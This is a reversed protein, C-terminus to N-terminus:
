LQNHIGDTGRESPQLAGAPITTLSYTALADSMAKLIQDQSEGRFLFRGGQQTAYGPAQELLSGPEPVLERYLHPIVGLLPTSSVVTQPLPKPRPVMLWGGSAAAAVAHPRVRDELLVETWLRFLNVGFVEHIVYSVDAGPVRAGIELFILEGGNDFFELHFASAKLDLVALCRLAFERCRAVVESDTQIVSGFPEGAEFALCTSVYRSISMFLCRGQGDVVGDAHMIDGDIYEEIEYEALDPRESLASLEDPSAVQRVGQSSAGRAPKFILPYGLEGADALVQQAPGCARWRPVRVGAAGLINKMIRKDRFRAVEAPRQGPVGHRERILAALDLLYESFAIVHDPRGTRAVIADVLGLVRGIDTLDDVVHVDAADPPVGSQGPSDCVYIV